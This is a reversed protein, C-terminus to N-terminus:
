DRLIDIKTKEDKNLNTLTKITNNGDMVEIVTTNNGVAGVSNAIITITTKKSIASVELLKKKESIKYNLLIIKGDQLVTVEDNDIQGGDYIYFKVLKSKTFVSTVEDKKLVNLAEKDLIKLNNFQEKLSDAVKKSKNVKKSVKAIRKEVREVANLLIEGDLCKSGDDYRGQFVGKISNTQGVKFKIPLFYINCFDNESVPSKTYIIGTENFSLMNNEEDYKGKISSKTEHEGGFDTLSFGSVEGKSVDFKVRYTIVATDNLKIAGIYDNSEQALLFIVNLFVFSVALTLKYM